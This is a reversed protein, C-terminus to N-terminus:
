LKILMNRTTVSKTLIEYRLHIFFPLYNFYKRGLNRLVYEINTSCFVSCSTKPILIEDEAPALEDIVKADPSGKPVFLNSIKYDLSQDRGDKTLSEIYTYIIESKTKRFANQLIQIAPVVTKNIRDFPYREEKTMTYPNLYSHYGRGPLACYNQMDVVLLCCKGQQLSVERSLAM